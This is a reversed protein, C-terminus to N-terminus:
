RCTSDATRPRWPFAPSRPASCNSRRGPGCTSPRASSRRISRAPPSLALVALGTSVYGIVNGSNSLKGALSIGVGLLGIGLGLWQQGALKEGFIPVAAAAVVLPSASLVLSSLGAPVGNGLGVYIGGLQGTQLLAGTLLLHAYVRPDTPWPARTVLAVVGIVVFAALFRWAALALPPGSHAGITGVLYGGSWILVFLVSLGVAALWGQSGNRVLPASEVQTM